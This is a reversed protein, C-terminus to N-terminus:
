TTQHKSSSPETQVREDVINEDFKKMENQTLINSEQIAQSAHTSGSGQRLITLTEVFRPKLIMSLCIEEDAKKMMKPRELPGQQSFTNKLTNM